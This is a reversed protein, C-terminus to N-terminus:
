TPIPDFKSIQAGQIEAPTLRLLLGGYICARTRSQREAHCDGASPPIGAVLMYRTAGAKRIAEFASEAAMAEGTAGDSGLWLGRALAARDEAGYRPWPGPHKCRRARQSRRSHQMRPVCGNPTIRPSHGGCMVRYPLHGRMSPGERRRADASVHRWCSRRYAGKVLGEWM